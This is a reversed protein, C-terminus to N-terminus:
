RLVDLADAGNNAQVVTYRATSLRVNLVIRNTAVDNVILISQTM